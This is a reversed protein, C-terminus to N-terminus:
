PRRYTDQGSLIITGDRLDYIRSFFDPPSLARMATFARIHAKPYEAKLRNAAGLMTAGRTIVDDVLLIEKPEESLIKQIGFSNYHDIAKPRDSAKSTASKPLRHIRELCEFVAKGFGNQVVANAIRQPVWLTGAKMLSSNPVPVLIPNKDFFDAFSLEAIKERIISSILESMFIPPNLIPRDFKLHLMVDKAQQEVETKVVPSYSLLSGFVLNSLHPYDGSM